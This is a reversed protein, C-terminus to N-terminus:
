EMLQLVSLNTSLVVIMQVEKRKTAVDVQLKKMYRHNVFFIHKKYLKTKKTGHKFHIRMFVM